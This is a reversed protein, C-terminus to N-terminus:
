SVVEYITNLTEVRSGASLSFNGAGNLTVNVILSTRIPTGEEWKRVNDHEAMYAILVRRDGGVGVIRAHSVKLVRKPPNNSAVIIARGSPSIGQTM